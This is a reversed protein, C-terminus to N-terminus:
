DPSRYHKWRDILLSVMTKTLWRQYSMNNWVMVDGAVGRPWDLEVSGQLRVLMWRWYVKIVRFAGIIAISM